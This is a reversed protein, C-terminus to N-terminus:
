AGGRIRRVRTLVQEAYAANRDRVDDPLNGGKGGNWAALASALIVDQGIRPSATGTAWRVLGALHTCGILLNVTPDVLQTLYSGVFGHERAVAGMVQCLGWSARQAWWEQDPDGALTPFDAPPYLSRVEADTVPRFPQRTRVNWLYRYKEEPNYAGADYDSEQEVLGQVLAPELRASTAAAVIADRFPTM